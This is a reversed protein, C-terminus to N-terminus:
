ESSYPLEQTGRSGIFMRFAYKRVYNNMHLFGPNMLGFEKNESGKQKARGRKPAEFPTAQYGDDDSLCLDEDGGDSSPDSLVIM